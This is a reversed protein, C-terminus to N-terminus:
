AHMLRSDLAKERGAMCLREGGHSLTALDSARLRVAPQALWSAVSALQQMPATHAMGAANAGSSCPTVWDLFLDEYISVDQSSQAMLPHDEGLIHDACAPSLPQRAGAFAQMLAHKSAHTCAQIDCEDGCIKVESIM